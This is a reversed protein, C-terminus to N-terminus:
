FSCKHLELWQVPRRSLTEFSRASKKSVWINVALLWCALSINDGEKVPWPESELYKFSYKTNNM